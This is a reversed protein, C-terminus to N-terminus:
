AVVALTVTFSYIETVSAPTGIAKPLKFGPTVSEAAVDFGVVIVTSLTVFTAVFMDRFPLMNVPGVVNPTPFRLKALSVVLVCVSM